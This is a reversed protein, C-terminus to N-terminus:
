RRRFEQRPLPRKHSKKDARKFHGSLYRVLPREVFKYVGIGVISAVIVSTVSFLFLSTMQWNPPPRLARWLQGLASLVAGHSLYLSYSADGLLKPLALEVVRHSREFFVAGAVVLFAPVGAVLARPSEPLIGILSVALVMGVLMMTISYLRPVAVNRTYLYGILVGFAFEIVISSSYFGVISNTAPNFSQLGVLCTLTAVITAARVKMPFILTFGFLLYFFMEYNLTWGPVVLPWMEEPVLPHPAPIFLYSAIIHYLDYQASQMLAPNILLVFVYFSTVLWYLPVIRVIRHRLFEATKVREDFTTYWMIFGSIVFFIDVGVNLFQPFPGTYGLRYLQLFVHYFVILLAAAGRLYQISRLILIDGGKCETVKRSSHACTRSQQDHRLGLDRHM